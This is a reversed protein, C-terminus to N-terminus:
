KWPAPAARSKAHRRPRPGGSRADQRATGHRFFRIKGMQRCHISANAQPVSRALALMLALTHEAVSVSNGGPTNMVLVGHHTAADMDVNDVGVGARGVM